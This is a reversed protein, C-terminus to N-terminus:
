VLIVEKKLYRLFHLSDLSLVLFSIILSFFFELDFDLQSRSFM